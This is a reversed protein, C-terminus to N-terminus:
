GFPLALSYLGQAQLRYLPQGCLQLYQKLLWLTMDSVTSAADHGLLLVEYM